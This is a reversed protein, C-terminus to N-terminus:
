QPDAVTFGTSSEPYYFFPNLVVAQWSGRNDIPNGGIVSTADVVFTFTQPDSTIDTSQIVTSNANGLLLRRPFASGVPVGSIKVCVTDGVLFSAKPTTCDDSFTELTPGSLPLPSLPVAAASTALPARRTAIRSHQEVVKGSGAIAAQPHSLATKKSLAASSPFYLSSAILGSLVLVAGLRLISPARFIRDSISQALSVPTADHAKM